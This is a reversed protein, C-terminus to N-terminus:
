KKFSKYTNKIIFFLLLGHVRNNQDTFVSPTVEVRVLSPFNEVRVLSLIAM